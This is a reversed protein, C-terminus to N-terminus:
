RRMALAISVAGVAGVVAGVIYVWSPVTPYPSPPPTPVEKEVVTVLIESSKTGNYMWDGSYRATVIYKGASGFTIYASFYGDEETTVSTAKKMGVYIDVTKGDLGFWRCIPDHWELHGEVHVRDGVYIKKPNVDFDKFRTDVFGFFRMSM